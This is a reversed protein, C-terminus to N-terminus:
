EDEMKNFENIEKKALQSYIGYRYTKILEDEENDSLNILAIKELLVVGTRDGDYTIEFADGYGDGVLGSVDVSILNLDVGKKKFEDKLKIFIKKNLAEVLEM